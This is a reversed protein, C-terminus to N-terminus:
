PAVDFSLTPTGDEASLQVREIGGEGDYTILLNAGLQEAEANQEAESLEGAISILALTADTPYSCAFAPAACVALAILVCPVVVRIQSNM